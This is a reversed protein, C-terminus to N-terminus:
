EPPPSALALRFTPCIASNKRSRSSINMACTWREAYPSPPCALRGARIRGRGLNSFLQEDTGFRVSTAQPLGLLFDAFDFGTGAVPLGQTTFDSTTYGNFTFTGLANPIPLRIRNWAASKAVWGCM